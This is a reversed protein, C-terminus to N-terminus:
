KLNKWKQLTKCFRRHNIANVLQELQIKVPQCYANDNLKLRTHASKKDRCM